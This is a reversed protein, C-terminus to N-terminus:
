VFFKGSLIFFVILLLIIIPLYIKSIKNIFIFIYKKFSNITTKKNEIFPNLPKALYYIIPVVYLFHLIFHPYIFYEHSQYSDKYNALYISAILDSFM